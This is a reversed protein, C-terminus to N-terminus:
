LAEYIAGYDFIISISNIISLWETLKFHPSTNNIIQWGLFVNSLVERDKITNAQFQFHLKKQKALSGLLWLGFTALAIILLLINLRHTHTTKSENLSFGLRQNKTDRFGNEIQARKAYIKMIKGILTSTHQLSTAILWPERERQAIKLSTAHRCKAGKLTKLVRGKALKKYLYLDCRVSTRRSLQCHGIFQPRSTAQPYLSKISVWEETNNALYHTRNRVREIWDWGLSSVDEFWTNRFGADTVIIPTCDTPLIQCLRALFEQHVKRNTLLCEPYASEYLTLARGGVPITARLLQHESGQGLPSWDVIIIPRRINGLIFGAMCKYISPVEQHLHSNGVLRDIKKIKNKVKIQMRLRRGLGTVTVCREKMRATVACMLSALRKSHMGVSKQLQNHLLQEVRM